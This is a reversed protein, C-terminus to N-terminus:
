AVSRDDFVWADYDYDNNGVVSATPAQWIEITWYDEDSSVLTSSSDVTLNLDCLEPNYVGYFAASASVVNNAGLKIDFTCSYTNNAAAKAPMFDIGYICEEFTTNAITLKAVNSKSTSSNSGVSAGYYCRSIHCNEVTIDCPAYFNIGSGAWQASEKNSNIITTNKIVGVTNSHAKPDGAIGNNFASDTSSAADVYCGDIEFTGRKVSIGTNYYTDVTVNKAVFTLNNNNNHPYVLIVANNGLNTIRFNSLEVKASGNSAMKIVIGGNGTAGATTVENARYGNAGRIVHNKGEIRLSKKINLDGITTDKLLVVTDGAPAANVAEELSAYGALSNTAVFSEVQEATAVAATEGAPITTAQKIEETAAYIHGLNGGESKAIEVGTATVNVVEVAGESEVVFRGKAISAKPFYGFEHYSSSAVANITLVLGEGYHKVNDEKADITLTGETTRVVIDKKAKASRNLTVSEIGECEGVDLGGDVTIASVAASGKLYHSCGDTYSSAGDDEFFWLNNGDSEKTKNEISSPYVVKDGKWYGFTNEEYAYVVRAGEVEPTIVRIDFGKEKALEEVLEHVTAKRNPISATTVLSNVQDIVMHDKSEKAKSTIGIYSVIAVASLIAVVAIVIVLEVLTFGKKIKRIM